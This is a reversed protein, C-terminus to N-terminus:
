AAKYHHGFMYPDDTATQNIPPGSPLFFASSLTTEIAVSHSYIYIYIHSIGRWAMSKQHGFLGFIQESVICSIELEPWVDFTM